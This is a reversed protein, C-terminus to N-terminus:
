GGYITLFELVDPVSCPMLVRGERQLTYYLLQSEAGTGHEAFYKCEALKTLIAIIELAAKSMCCYRQSKTTM